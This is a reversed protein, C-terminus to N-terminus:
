GEKLRSHMIKTQELLQDHINKHEKAKPYHMHELIDEEHKFHDVTDVLLRDFLALTKEHEEPLFCMSIIENSISIQRHHEQDIEKHGSRFFPGWEVAVPEDREAIVLEENSVVKNRGTLKALYLSNDLRKFCSDETDEALWTTVGLSATVSGSFNFDHTEVKLRIKEAIHNADSLTTNPFIICFEEGGWRCVIDSTRTNAKLLAATQILVCDGQLHGYEDNVKKFHDLDLLIISLPQGSELFLAVQKSLSDIFYARNYLGTLRDTTAMEYLKLTNNQHELYLTNNQITAQIRLIFLKFDFPKLLFDNAGISLCHPIVNGEGYTTIVIIICEKNHERIEYILDEGNINPMVLDVLFLDYDLGSQVLARSDQFYSVNQVGYRDFYGRIVELSFQSDDVVAIRMAKLQELTQLARELADIYDSFRREDFNSISMITMIGKDFM